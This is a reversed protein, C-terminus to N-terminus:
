MWPGVALHAVRQAEKLEAESLRLAEDAQKRQTIDRAVAAGGTIHGESDRVPFMSVSLQVRRGGKGLRETEYNLITEGRAIRDVFSLPGDTRDPPWLLSVPQGVIEAASYGSLREAAPNFSLIVNDLNIGVIADDSSDVVAALYGRLQDARETAEVELPSEPKPM